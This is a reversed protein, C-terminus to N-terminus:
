ILQHIIKLDNKQEIVFPRYAWYRNVFCIVTWNHLIYFARWQILVNIKMSILFSNCREEINRKNLSKKMKIPSEGEGICCNISSCGTPERFRMRIFEEQSFFNELFYFLRFFIGKCSECCLATSINWGVCEFLCFISTFKVM